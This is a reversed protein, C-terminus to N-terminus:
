DLRRLPSPMPHSVGDGTSQSTQPLTTLEGAADAALDMGCVLKSANQAHSVCRTCLLKYKKVNQFECFYSAVASRNVPQSTVLQRPIAHQRRPLGAVSSQAATQLLRIMVFVVVCGLVLAGLVALAIYVAPFEATCLVAM